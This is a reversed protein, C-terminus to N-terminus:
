FKDPDLRQGDDIWALKQWTGFTGSVTSSDITDAIFQVHGDCFLSFVGGAHRSRAGAYDANGAPTFPLSFAGKDCPLNNAPVNNISSTSACGWDVDPSTPARNGYLKDSTTANPGTTALLFQM